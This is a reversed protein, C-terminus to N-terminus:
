VFTLWDREKGVYLVHNYGRLNFYQLKSDGEWNRETITIYFVITLM